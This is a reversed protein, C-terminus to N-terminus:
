SAFVKIYSGFASNLLLPEDYCLIDLVDSRFDPSFLQEVVVDEAVGDATWTYLLRRAFQAVINPPMNKDPIVQVGVFNDPWILAAPGVAEFVKDAGFANALTVTNINRIAAPDILNAGVFKMVDVIESEVRLANMVQAGGYVAVSGYSKLESVQERIKTLISGTTADVFSGSFVLNVTDTEISDFVAKIAALGLQLEQGQQGGLMEQLSVDMVQRNIREDCAFPTLTVTQNSATVYGGPARGKQATASTIAQNVPIKGAMTYVPFVPIIENSIYGQPLGYESEVAKLIDQRPIRMNNTQM